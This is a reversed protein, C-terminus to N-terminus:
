TGMVISVVWSTGPNDSSIPGLAIDNRQVIGLITFAERIRQKEYDM